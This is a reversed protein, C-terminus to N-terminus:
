FLMLWVELKLFCHKVNLTTETIYIDVDEYRSITLTGITVKPYLISGHRIGVSPINSSFKHGERIVEDEFVLGFETRHIISKFTTFYRTHLDWNIPYIAGRIVPRL